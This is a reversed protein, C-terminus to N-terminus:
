LSFEFSAMPCPALLAPIISALDVSAGSGAWMLILYVGLQCRRAILVHLLCIAFAKSEHWPDGTSLHIRLHMGEM